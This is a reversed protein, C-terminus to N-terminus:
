VCDDRCAVRACTGRLHHEFFPVLINQQYWTSTAFGFDAQGLKRGEDGAWQGHYWPGMVLANPPLPTRSKRHRRVNGTPGYLDETDYWGGVTLVAAKINQLNPLINRAKWSNTRLESAAELDNWFGIEDKFYKADVNKLPGLYWSSSTDMAHRSTLAPTTKRLRSPDLKESRHLFISDWRYFLPAMAISIM